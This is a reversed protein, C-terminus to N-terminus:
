VEVWTIAGLYMLAAGKAGQVSNYPGELTSAKDPWTIEAYYGTTDNGLIHVRAAMTREGDTSAAFGVRAPPGALLDDLIPLRM